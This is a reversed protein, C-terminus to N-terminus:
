SQFLHNNGSGVCCLASAEPGPGSQTLKKIDPQVVANGTLVHETKM